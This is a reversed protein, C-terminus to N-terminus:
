PTKLPLIGKIIKPNNFDNNDIVVAARERPKCLELYLKEGSIYRKLYREKLNEITGFYDIDRIIARELVTEFEIKIM